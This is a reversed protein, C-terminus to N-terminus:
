SLPALDIGNGKFIRVNSIHVYKTDFRGYPIFGDYKEHFETVLVHIEELKEVPLWTM